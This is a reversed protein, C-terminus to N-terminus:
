QADISKLIRERRQKRWIRMWLRRYYRIGMYVGTASVITGGLILLYMVSKRLIPREAFYKFRLAHFAPYIWKKVRENTGYYRVSGTTPSIYIRSKDPDQATVKYIPLESRGSNTCYYNDMEHMLEVKLPASIVQSVRHEIEEPTFFLPEVQGEPNIRYNEQKGAHVVTYYHVDAIQHISIEQVDPLQFIQRYDSLLTSIDLKDKGRLQAKVEPHYRKVMWSPLDNMSLLGSLAFMMIFFGFFIGVVHHWLYIKQKYPSRLKGSKRYRQIYVQAGVIIGSLTMLVGLGALISVVTLWLDRNQRLQWFYLMHPISSMSSKIRENKTCYQLPEGTKSSIYLFTKDPDSFRFRYIPLEKKLSAYPIWADLTHLTDIRQIPYDSWGQAYEMIWTSSVKAEMPQMLTDASFLYSGEGTSLQLAPAGEITTLTFSRLQEGAPLRDVIENLAPLGEGKITSKHVLDKGRLRPFSTHMMMFGSLFWVLFLFSLLAGLFAHIKRIFRM